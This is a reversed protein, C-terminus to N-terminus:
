GERMAALAERANELTPLNDPKEEPKEEKASVLKGTKDLWTACSAVMEKISWEDEAGALRLHDRLIKGSKTAIEVGLARLEEEPTKM